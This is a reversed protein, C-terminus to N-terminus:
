LKELLAYYMSDSCNEIGSITSMEVIKLNLNREAWAAIEENEAKFVSCTLYTIIGGKNLFPNIKSLINRQRTVYATFSSEDFFSLWEPTRGWTGSGSCPVDAVIGDFEDPGFPIMDNELDIVKFNLFRFKQDPLRKKFEAIISERKDSCTLRIDPHKDLLQLSKGGAGSCCDWWRQDSNAPIKSGVLQSSLDQVQFLHKRFSLMDQLSVSAPLAYTQDSLKSFSINRQKLEEEVSHNCGSNVRIFVDPQKLLSILLQDSDIGASLESSFPFLDQLSFEPLVSRLFKIREHLNQTDHQAFEPYGAHKFPFGSSGNVLYNGVAMRQMTGSHILAKGIRFYAYCWSRYLRRDTSGFGKNASFFRSLFHHFPESGDYSDIIGCAIQLRNRNLASDKAPDSIL